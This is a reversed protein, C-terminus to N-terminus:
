KNKEQQEIAQKVEQAAKNVREIQERVATVYDQIRELTERRTMWESALFLALICWFAWHTIHVQAADLVMGLVAYLAIRQLM